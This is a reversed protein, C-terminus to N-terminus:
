KEKKKECEICCTAEPMIMLRETDIMKKCKECIGYKGIKIRALAKKIQVLKRDLHHQMARVREHGIQEAADADSAANDILRRTDGFPDEQSLDKKRKELKKAERSLFKAIPKIIKQPFSVVPKAM